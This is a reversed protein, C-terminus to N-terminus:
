ALLDVQVGDGDGEPQLPHLVLRLLEGPEDVAQVGRLDDDQSNPEPLSTHVPALCTSSTPAATSLIVSSSFACAQELSGGLPRCRMPVGMRLGKRRQALGPSQFPPHRQGRGDVANGHM